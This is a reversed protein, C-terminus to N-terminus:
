VLLITPLTLHTYSVPDLYICGGEGLDVWIWESEGLDVRIGSGLDMIYVRSVLERVVKRVLQCVLQSGLEIGLSSLQSVDM